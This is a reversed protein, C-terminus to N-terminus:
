DHPREAVWSARAAVRNTAALGRVAAADPPEGGVSALSIPWTQGAPRRDEGAAAALQDAVLQRDKGAAGAAAMLQRPQLRDSQAM